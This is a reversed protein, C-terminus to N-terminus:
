RMFAKAFDVIEKLLKRTKKSKKQKVKKTPLPMERIPGPPLGKKLASGRPTASPPIRLSQPPLPTHQKWFLNSEMSFKVKKSSKDASKAVASVDEADATNLDFDQSTEGKSNETRKRKRSVVGQSTEGKSNETRKRKKSVDSKNIKRQNKKPKRVKDVSDLVVRDISDPLFFEFGSNVVDKELKLFENHLEFLVKRKSNVCGPNSALEFLKSSFGMVVAITGLNVVDGDCEEGSKKFELLKKGNMLLVDFFGSKIKGLLVKDRLKVVASFFPRFLLELVSLKVPLFPTLEQLFVSAVYYNVRKEEVFRDKASFTSKDFCNMVLNVLDLKWSNKDLLSFANSIFRRILLYFKDLRVSNIGSWERRMTLFFTSFYQLSRSPHPFTSLYSALRDILDAQLLSKDSRYVCYFLGKWLKKAINQPLLHQSRWSKLLIRIAKNKSFKHSSSLKVPPSPIIESSSPM